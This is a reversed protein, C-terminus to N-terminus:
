SQEKFAKLMASYGWACNNGPLLMPNATKEMAAKIMYDTPEVPVIAMGELREDVVRICDAVINGKILDYINQHPAAAGRLFFDKKEKLEDLLAQKIDSM